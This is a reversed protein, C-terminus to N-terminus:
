GVCSWFRCRADESGTALHAATPSHAVWRITASHGSTLRHASEATRANWVVVDGSTDDSTIVFDENDSFCAQSRHRVHRHGSYYLLPRRASLDWLVATSNRGASLLYKQNKSFAVSTVEQLLCTRRDLAILPVDQSHASRRLALRSVMKDHGSDLTAVCKSTVIDWLRITGDKGATAYQKGDAACRVQNIGGTHHSESVSPTFCQLSEADYLHAQGCGGCSLCCFAASSVSIFAFARVMHHDTGALVFNGSPHFTASFVNHTDQACPM